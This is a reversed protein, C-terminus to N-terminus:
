HDHEFIVVLTFIIVVIVITVYFDHVEVKMKGNKSDLVSLGCRESISLM